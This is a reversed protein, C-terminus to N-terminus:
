NITAIPSYTSNDDELTLVQLLRMADAGTFLSADGQVGQDMVSSIEVRRKVKVAGTRVLMEVKQTEFNVVAKAADLLRPDKDELTALLALAKKSAQEIRHFAVGLTGMVGDESLNAMYMDRAEARLDRVKAYPIKMVQSIVDQPAGINELMVYQQLMQQPDQPKDDVPGVLGKDALAQAVEAAKMHAVPDQGKGKLKKRELGSATHKPANLKLPLGKSAKIIKIM